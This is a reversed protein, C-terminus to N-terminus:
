NNRLPISFSFTSGRGLESTVWIRGGHAEVIQKAVTLGLGLGNTKHSNNSLRQYPQFIKNQDEAAIGTGEDTVEMLISGNQEVAHLKIRSNDPSYKSANSLLNVLVGELRSQDIKALPPDPQLELILQQKRREVTPKYRSVIEEVFEPIDTTQLNLNFTGRAYRAMDLLDELRKALTQTGDYINQILKKQFPNSSDKSIDQLMSTSAQIPTLPNRLEHALVDIFRIRIKAEEELELRQHKEKEYYKKLEEEVEKRKTIDHAVM